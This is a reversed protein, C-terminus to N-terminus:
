VFLASEPPMEAFKVALYLLSFLTANYAGHILVPVVLNNTYEYVIGFVVSPFVLLSISTFRAMPSGSVAAYHIAAFIVSALLIGVAPSITERLRTQVVGRFLLEEGVGIFLFSAPLLLLLVEPNEMGLQAAQNTGAEVGLQSVVVAASIGLGLATVYGVVAAVWDRFSPVRVGFYSLDKGRYRLYLLAMGGIGGWTLFVLSISINLIPTIEVGVLTLGFAVLLVLAYGLAPGAIALGVAVAIARVAGGSPSADADPSV